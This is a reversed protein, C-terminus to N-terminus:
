TLRKVRWREGEDLLEKTARQKRGNDAYRNINRESIKIGAQSEGLGSNQMIYEEYFNSLRPSLICGQREGKGIKFWDM